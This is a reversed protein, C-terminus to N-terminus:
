HQVQGTDAAAPPSFGISIIDVFPKRINTFLGQNPNHKVTGSAKGSEPKCSETKSRLRLLSCIM